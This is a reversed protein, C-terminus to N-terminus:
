RNSELRMYDAGEASSFNYQISGAPAVSWEGPQVIVNTYSLMDASRELGLDLYIADTTADYRLVPSTIALVDVDLGFQEPEQRMADFLVGNHVLPDLGAAIEVDNRVGDGDDDPVLVANGVDVGEAALRYFAKTDPADLTVSWGGAANTVIQGAQLDRVVFGALDLSEQLRLQLTFMGNTADLLLVSGGAGPDIGFAAPEERFADILPRNSRRPDLGLSVELGDNLSDRDTDPDTDRTGYVDEEEAETLGDGDADESRDDLITLVFNQPIGQVGNSPSAVVRINRTSEEEFDLNFRSFLQDGVIDFFGNDHDGVGWFWYIWSPDPVGLSFTGVPLEIPQNEMIVLPSLTFFGTSDSLAYVYASGGDDGSMDHQIAGVALANSSISLSVGFGDGTRSDPAKFEDLLRWENDPFHYIFVSGLNLRDDDDTGTAGVVMYNDNLAVSAGFNDFPDLAVFLSTLANWNTGQRIFVRASGGNEVSGLDDLPAGIVMTDGRVAVASGFRDGTSPYFLELSDELVWSFGLLEFVFARGTDQRTRADARNAGIVATSGDLAVAIGFNDGSAPDPSELKQMFQWSNGELSYVYAAGADLVGSANGSYAGVLLRSGSLALAHGFLDTPGGDPAQLAEQFNWVGANRAYVNVSGQEFAIGVDEEPVGIALTDNEIAVSAGFYDFADPSQHELRQELNWVGNSEVFVHVAGARLGGATHEASGVATTDGFTGIATGFHFNRAIGELTIRQQLVWPDPDSRVFVAVSGADDGTTTAASEAGVVITDGDIAVAEGFQARFENAQPYLYREVSWVTGTRAFVVASGESGTGNPNDDYIAGVLLTDEALAVASGFRDGSGPNPNDLQQQLSWTGQDRVFVYSSGAASVGDVAQQYAGIALTDGDVAVSHGFRDAGAVVNAAEIFQQVVWVGNSQVYVYAAGRGGLDRDAGVVITDGSNSVSWGFRPVGGLSADVLQEEEVWTTGFRRYVYAAGQATASTHGDRYAGIVATDGSISVSSGFSDGSDIQSGVLKQTQRWWSGQRTFVYAAGTNAGIPLDATYAGVIIVDNEVAVSWGFYDREAADHAVLKQQVRWSGNTRVFVWVSGTDIGAESDDRSESIVLTDGDIAVASGFDDRDGGRLDPTPFLQQQLNIIIPDITLPYDINADHVAFMLGKPSPSMTATVEKGHADFVKLKQYGLLAEGFENVWVLDDVHEPDRQVSLGEIQLKIQLGPKPDMDAAPSRVTFGHELGEISNVYWETLIANHAIEVRDNSVQEPRVAKPMRWGCGLRGPNSFLEPIWGSGATRWFGCPIIRAPSVPM